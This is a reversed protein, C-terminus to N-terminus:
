AAAELTATEAMVNVRRQLYDILLMARHGGNLSVIFEAEMGAFPGEQIVVRQGAEFESKVSFFDPDHELASAKLEQIVECPLSAPQDGSRVLGIVGPRSAVFRGAHSCDFRAFFYGPFLASVVERRVGGVPMKKRIRPFYIEMEGISEAMEDTLRSLAEAALQEKGAKARVCYWEISSSMPAMKGLLFQAM